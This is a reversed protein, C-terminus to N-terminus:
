RRHGGTALETMATATLVIMNQVVLGLQGRGNSQVLVRGFVVLCPKM